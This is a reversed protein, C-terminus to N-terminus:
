YGVLRVVSVRGDRHMARVVYTGANSPSLISRIAGSYQAVIRGTADLVDISRLADASEVRIPGGNSPNPFLSIGSASTGDGVSMAGPCLPLLQHVQMDVGSLGGQVQFSLRIWGTQAGRRYAIYQNDITVPGIATFGGFDGLM